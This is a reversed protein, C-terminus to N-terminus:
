LPVLIFQDNEPNDTYGSLIKVDGNTHVGLYIIQGDLLISLTVNDDRPTINWNQETSQMKPIIVKQDKFPLKEFGLFRGTKINKITFTDKQKTITFSSFKDTLSVMDNKENNIYFDGLTSKIKYSTNVPIFRSPITGNPHIVRKRWRLIFFLLLGILGLFVVTCVIIIINTYRSLM